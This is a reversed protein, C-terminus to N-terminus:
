FIYKFSFGTKLGELSIKETVLRAETQVEQVFDQEYSGFKYELILDVSFHNSFRSQLGIIGTGLATAGSVPEPNEKDRFDLAYDIFLLESGVGVFPTFIVVSIPNAYYIMDLTFPIGTLLMETPGFKEITKAARQQWYGLGVKGVLDRKIGIELFGNVYYNDEYEAGLFQSNPNTKWYDLEPNYLGLSVGFSQIVLTKARDSEQAFGFSIILIFVAILFIKGNIIM